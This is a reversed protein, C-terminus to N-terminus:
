PNETDIATECALSQYAHNSEYDKTQSKTYSAQIPIKTNFSHYKSKFELACPINEM